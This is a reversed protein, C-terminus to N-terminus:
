HLGAASPDPLGVQVELKLAGSATPFIAVSIPSVGSLLTNSTTKVENNGTNRTFMQGSGVLNSQIEHSLHSMSRAYASVFAMAFMGPKNSFDAEGLATKWGELFVARKEYDTADFASPKAGLDVSPLFALSDASQTWEWREAGIVLTVSIEESSPTVSSFWSLELPQSRATDSTAADAVQVVTVGGKLRAIKTVPPLTAPITALFRASSENVSGTSDNESMRQLSTVRVEKSFALMAAAMKRAQLTAEATDALPLSVGYGFSKGSKDPNLFWEPLNGNQKPSCAAVALM